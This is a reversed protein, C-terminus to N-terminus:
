SVYMISASPLVASYVRKSFLRKPTGELPIELAIDILRPLLKSAFTLSSLSVVDVSGLFITKSFLKFMEVDCLKAASVKFHLGILIPVCNEKRLFLIFILTPVVNSGYM